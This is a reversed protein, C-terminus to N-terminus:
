KMRRSKFDVGPRDAARTAGDEVSAGHLGAQYARIDAWDADDFRWIPQLDDDLLWQLHDDSSQPSPWMVSSPRASHCPDDPHAHDEVQPLGCGVLGLKHGYEHVLIAREFGDTGDGPIGVNAQPLARSPLMDPFVAILPRDAFAIGYTVSSGQQAQDAGALYLVHLVATGGRDRWTDPDGTYLQGHLIVIEDRTLNEHEARLSARVNLDPEAGVLRMTAALAELALQSPGRGPAHELQVVLPGPMLFPNVEAPSPFGPPPEDTPNTCGALVLALAITSTWPHPM